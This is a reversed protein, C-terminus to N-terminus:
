LEDPAEMNRVGEIERRLRERARSLRSMVTGLPVKLASALKQYSWGEIERLGLIERSEVPLRSLAEHLQRLREEWFSELQPKPASAADIEPDLRIINAERAHKKIWSYATNRVITMLWPRANEGRFREFGKFARLYAEQVVDQADEDKGVLFRALTYAADLHPLCLEEFRSRQEQM